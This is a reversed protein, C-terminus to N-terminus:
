LCKRFRLSSPGTPCTRISSSSPRTPVTELGNLPPDRVRRPPGYGLLSKFVGVCKPACMRMPPANQLSQSCCCPPVCVQGLVGYESNGWTMCVGTHGVLAAHQAGFAMHRITYSVDLPTPVLRDKKDDQGLQFFFGYGWVWAKGAMSVAASVDHGAFVANIKEHRLAEVRTPLMQDEEDGHGLRGYKGYGWTYVEGSRTVAMSHLSGCAVQKVGADNLAAVVQPTAAGKPNKLGATPVGLQLHKNSGWAYVTGKKSVALSHWHGAAAHAISEIGAVEQFVGESELTGAGLQGQEGLGCALLRGSATVLLTHAGGCALHQILKAPLEPETVRAPEFQQHAFIPADPFLGTGGKGYDANGWTWLTRGPGVNGWTRLGTSRARGAWQGFLAVSAVGKCLSRTMPAKGCHRREWVPISLTV